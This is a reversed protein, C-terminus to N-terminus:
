YPLSRVNEPYPMFPIEESTKDDRDDYLELTHNTNQLLSAIYPALKTITDDDIPPRVELAEQAQHTITNVGNIQKTFHTKDPFDLPFFHSYDRVIKSESVQNNVVLRTEFGLSNLFSVIKQSRLVRTPDFGTLLTSESDCGDFIRIITPTKENM